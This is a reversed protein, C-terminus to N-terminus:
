DNPNEEEKPEDDKIIEIKPKQIEINAGQKPVYDTRLIIFTTRRNLQHAAEREDNTPLSEIYEKTLVTGKRFTFEKRNYSLSMDNDLVRPVREGYGKAVLRDGAIGKGILYDVVSQARRQSLTDNTIPIPRVDTHSQLEIVLNPNETMIDILGDLSNFYEPKLEWRGLDYRIEPLIIPKKPVPVIYFDRVLDTTKNLGVTTERGKEMFYDKKSVEIVYSTNELIQAENFKFFGRADTSDVYINGDSGVVQVVARPVVQKTSDDYVIGSITFLIPPLKFMWLDDGGRGGKRNSTFFGMEKAYAEKLMKEDKNFVMHFDDSSSNIPSMMNEPKTWQGDILETRFIDLGGMGPHYNSSFYMINDERLTPFLEDGPTNIVPGLNVPKEFPRNKRPRQMMWIDRGGFGGPMDSAFYITLEDNTVAPHGVTITDGGVPIVEVDGWGKGRKTATYIQCGSRQKRAVECRTFYITNFKDNFAAVGENSISNLEGTDDISVPTGWNGKRDLEIIFLDTFSQGTWADTGKGKVGDRSTTFVISRYRRDAYSPAFDNARSNMKKNNEIEYRTPNDRWQLAMTSSEIGIDGRPDNPALKKYEGYQIVADAFKENMRLADAYYLHAIPDPYKAAVVRRFSSEANKTDNIMRYSYAMNYLIRAREMRNGKVKTYAKKYLPIADYYQELNFKNDAEEAFNRQANASYAAVFAVIITILIRKM